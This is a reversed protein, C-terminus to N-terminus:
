SIKTDELPLNPILSFKIPKRFQVSRKKAFAKAETLSESTKIIFCADVNYGKKNPGPEDM